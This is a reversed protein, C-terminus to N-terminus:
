KRQTFYKKFLFIYNRLKYKNPCCYHIFYLQDIINVRSKRSFLLKFVNRIDMKTKGTEGIGTNNIDNYVRADYSLLLNYGSEKARCAFEYDSIYHPFHEKDFNGVRKFVEIPYLTGKSSLTNIADEIRKQPLESVIKPGISIFTGKKWDIRVGADHIKEKNKSNLILSGIITNPYEEGLSVLISIYNSDFICDNNIILIYDHSKAKKLVENIGWYIGGSWWLKGDGQLVKCEKYNKRIWETTNDMSGDDVIITQISQYTQHKLCSVLIKMNDKANHAVSIIYVTPLYKNNKQM